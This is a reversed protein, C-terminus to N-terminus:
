NLNFFEIIKFLKRLDSDESDEEEEEVLIMVNKSKVLIVMKM